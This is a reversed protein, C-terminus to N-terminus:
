VSPNRRFILNQQSLIKFTEFQTGEHFLRTAIARVSSHVAPLSSPPYCDDRRNSSPSPLGSHRPQVNASLFEPCTHLIAANPIKCHQPSWRLPLSPHIPHCHCDKWDPFRLEYKLVGGMEGLTQSSIFENDRKIGDADPSHASPSGVM